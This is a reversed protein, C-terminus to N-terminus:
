EYKTKKLLNNIILFHRFINYKMSNKKLKVKMFFRNENNLKSFELLKKSLEGTQNNKFLLGNKSNNLFEKPGNPCDSSIVFLNSIAAEVIVFGVEEWLSSLVFVDANKMYSFVNEKRGLMFIQKQLNKKSILSKLYKKEEGDGLILLIYEKNIKYFYEFENILYNFNKQKTLRGAALIIKKSNDFKIDPALLVNKKVDNIKFIADPLFSLNKKKFINTKEIKLLLEKSPCTIKFIKKSVKKWFFNRFFNLKPYGSIRLILKTNFNFIYFLSLPLSTILHAIFFDVKNKKLLNILPFFSLIFIIAYSFRSQLFGTKPLFKFYSFFSLNIIKINNSIFFDKYEEWEGCTNIIVPKLKSKSYRSLSLASNVTSIVTGVKNLCPSWYYVYSSM